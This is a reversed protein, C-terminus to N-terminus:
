PFSLEKRISFERLSTVCLQNREKDNQNRQLFVAPRTVGDFRRSHFFHNVKEKWSLGDCFQESLPQFSDFVGYPQLYALAVM